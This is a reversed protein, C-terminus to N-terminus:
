WFGGLNWGSRVPRCARLKWFIPSIMPLSAHRFRFANLVAQKDAFM